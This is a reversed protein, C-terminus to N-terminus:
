TDFIKEKNYWMQSYSILSEDLAINFGVKYLEM